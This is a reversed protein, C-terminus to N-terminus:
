SERPNRRRYDDANVYFWACGYNELASGNEWECGSSFM